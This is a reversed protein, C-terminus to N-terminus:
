DVHSVIYYLIIILLIYIFLIKEMKHMMCVHCTYWVCTSHVCEHIEFLMLMSFNVDEWEEQVAEQGNFM